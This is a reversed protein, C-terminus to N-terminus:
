KVFHNLSWVFSFSLFTVWQEVTFYALKYSFSQVFGTNWNQTFQTSLPHSHASFKLNRLPQSRTDGFHTNTQQNLKNIALGTRSGHISGNIQTNGPQGQDSNVDMVVRLAGKLSQKSEFEGSGIFRTQCPNHNKMRLKEEM